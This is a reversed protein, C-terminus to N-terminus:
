GDAVHFSKIMSGSSAFILFRRDWRVGVSVQFRGRRKRGVLAAGDPGDGMAAGRSQAPVSKGTFVFAAPANVEGPVGAIVLGARLAAALRGRAPDGAFHGFQHARGIEQDGERQGGLQAALEESRV